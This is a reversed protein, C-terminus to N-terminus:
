PDTNIFLLWMVTVVCNSRNGLNNVHFYPLSMNSLAIHETISTSTPFVNAKFLM